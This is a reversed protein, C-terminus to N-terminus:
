GGLQAEVGGGGPHNRGQRRYDSADRDRVEGGVNDHESRSGAIGPRRRWGSGSPRPHGTVGTLRCARSRQRPYSSGVVFCEGFKARITARGGSQNTSPPENTILWVLRPKSRERRYRRAGRLHMKAAQRARGHPKTRARAARDRRFIRYVTTRERSKWTTHSIRSSNARNGVPNAASSTYTEPPAGDRGEASFVVYVGISDFPGRLAQHAADM